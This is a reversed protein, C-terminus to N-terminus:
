PKLRLLVSAPIQVRSLEEATMTRVSVILRKRLEESPPLKACGDRMELVNSPPHMGQRTFWDLLHSQVETKLYGNWRHRFRPTLFSAPRRQETWEALRDDREVEEVGDAFAKKWRNFQEATITPMDPGTAGASSARRAVQEVPDWVYKEDNSFDLVARWLDSRIRAQVHPFLPGSEPSPDKLIAVPPTRTDDFALIDGHNRAFDQFTSAGYESERFTGETLDLIRNKLVAVTMRQWDPRGSEQAKAFAARILERPDSPM